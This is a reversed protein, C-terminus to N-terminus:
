KVVAKRTDDLVPVAPRDKTGDLTVVTSAVRRKPAAPMKVKTGTADTVRGTVAAGTGAAEAEDGSSGCASLTFACPTLLAASVAPRAIGRPYPSSYPAM